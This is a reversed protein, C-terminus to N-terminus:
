RSFLAIGLFSSAGRAMPPDERAQLDYEMGM